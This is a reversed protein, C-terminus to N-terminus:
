DDWRPEESRRAQVFPDILSGNWEREEELEEDTIEPSEPAPSLTLAVLLREGAQREADRIAMIDRVSSGRLARARDLRQDRSLSGLGGTPPTAREFELAPDSLSWALQEPTEEDAVDLHLQTRIEQVARQLYTKMVLHLYGDPTQIDVVEGEGTVFTVVEGSFLELLQGHQAGAAVFYPNDLLSSVNLSGNLSLLPYTGHWRHGGYLRSLSFDSLIRRITIQESTM